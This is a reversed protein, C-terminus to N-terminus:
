WEQTLTVALVNITFHKEYPYIQIGKGHRKHNHFDGDYVAGNLETLIGQGATYMTFHSDYVNAHDERWAHMSKFHKIDCPCVLGHVKEKTIRGAERM